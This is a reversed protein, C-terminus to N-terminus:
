VNLIRLSVELCQPSLKTRARPHIEEEVVSQPMYGASVSFPRRKGQPMTIIERLSTLSKSASVKVDTLIKDLVPGQPITNYWVFNM